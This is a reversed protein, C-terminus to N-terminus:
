KSKLIDLLVSLEEVKINNSAKTYSYILNNLLRAIISKNTCTAYYKSKTELKLQSLFHTVDRKSLVTGKSFPNIYFLIKKNDDSFADVYGLIFHRPLNVGYVPVELMECVIMYIISLTLPSGKKSELVENLYSNQPAHYNTTNASFGHIGFIVRNIVRVKELATLDDNIELWVDRKLLEFFSNFKAEDFDPYQYRCVIYVAELLNRKDGSVWKKLLSQVHEFQIQHVIEEIRNQFLVGYSFDEWARELVPIVVPGCDILKKSVHDYIGEDPDDLLNLLAKIEKPDQM